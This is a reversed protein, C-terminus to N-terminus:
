LMIEKCKALDIYHFGKKIRVCGLDLELLAYNTNKFVVRGKVNRMSIAKKNINAGSVAKPYQVTLVDGIHINERIREVLPKGNRKKDLEILDFLSDKKQRAIIENPWDDPNYPMGIARCIRKVTKETTKGGQCIKRITTDTVGSIRQLDMKSIRKDIMYQDLNFM